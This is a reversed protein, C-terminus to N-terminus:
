LRQQLRHVRQSSIPSRFALWGFRLRTHAGPRCWVGLHTRRAPEVPPDSSAWREVSYHFRLVQLFPGPEGSRLWAAEYRALDTVWVPHARLDERVLYAAFRIADRQPKRIGVPPSATAAYSLFLRNFDTGLVERTAPLMKATDGLRKWHLSRAFRDISAAAEQLQALEMESLFLERAFQAPDHTLSARLPGDTYLRTLATQLTTLGV